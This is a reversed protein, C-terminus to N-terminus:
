GTADGGKDALERLARALKCRRTDALLRSSDRPHRGDPYWLHLSAMEEQDQWVLLLLSGHM